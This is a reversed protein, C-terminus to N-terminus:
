KGQYRSSVCGDTTIQWCSQLEEADSDVLRQALQDLVHRNNGVGRQRGSGGVLQHNMM